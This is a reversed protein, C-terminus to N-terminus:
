ALGDLEEIEVLVLESGTVLLDFDEDESEFGLARSGVAFGGSAWPGLATALVLGM